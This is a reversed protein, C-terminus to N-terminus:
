EMRTILMRTVCQRFDTIVLDKSEEYDEEVMVKKIAITTM